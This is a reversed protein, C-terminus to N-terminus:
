KGQSQYSSQIVTPASVLANKNVNVNKGGSSRSVAAVTNVVAPGGVPLVSSAAIMGGANVASGVIGSFGPTTGGSFPVPSCTPNCHYATAEHNSVTLGEDTQSVVIHQTRDPLTTAAVDLHGSNHACGGLAASIALVCASILKTKAM